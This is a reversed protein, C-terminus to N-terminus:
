YLVSQSDIASGALISLCLIGAGVLAFVVAFALGLGLDRRKM